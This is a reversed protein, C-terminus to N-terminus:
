NSHSVDPPPNPSFSQGYNAGPVDSANAGPMPSATHMILHVSVPLFRAMSTLTTRPMLSASTCQGESTRAPVNCAHMHQARQPTEAAQHVVASKEHQSLV